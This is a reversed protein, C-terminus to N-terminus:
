SLRYHLFDNDCLVLPSCLYAETPGHHLCQLQQSQRFPVDGSLTVNFLSSILGAAKDSPM